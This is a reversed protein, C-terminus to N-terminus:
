CEDFFFTLYVVSVGDNVQGEVLEGVNALRNGCLIRIVPNDLRLFGSTLIQM